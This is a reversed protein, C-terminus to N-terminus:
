PSVEKSVEDIGPQSTELYVPVEASFSEPVMWVRVRTPNMSDPPVLLPHEPFKKQEFMDTMGKRFEQVEQQSDWASEWLLIAERTATLPETATYFGYRDGDWGAAAKEASRQGVVESLFTRIGLEGLTNQWCLHWTKGGLTVTEPLSIEEIPDGGNVYIEPHLIQETSQPPKKYLANVGDWDILRRSLDSDSQQQWVGDRFSYRTSLQLIFEEGALYPFLLSTQIFPPSANFIEQDMMLSSILTMLFQMSGQKQFLKMMVLTADGEVVAMAAMARDDNQVDEIPLSLLDFHQDTLAHTLEHILIIPTFPNNERSNGGMTVMEKTEPDYFGAIQETLLRQYLIELNLEPPIVGL